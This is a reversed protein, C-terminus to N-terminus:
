EKNAIKLLNEVGEEGHWWSITEFGKGNLNILKEYKDKGDKIEVSIGDPYFTNVFEEVEDYKEFDLSEFFYDDVTQVDASTMPSDSEVEIYGTCSEGWGETLHDQDWEALKESEMFTPYASGDGGDRVSYYFRQKKTEVIEPQSSGSELINEAQNLVLENIEQESLNDDVEIEVYCPFVVKKTVKM